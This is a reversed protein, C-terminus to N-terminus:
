LVYVRQRIAGGEDASSSSPGRSSAISMSFACAVSTQLAV